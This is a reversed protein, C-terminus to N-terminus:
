FLLLIMALSRIESVGGYSCLNQNSGAASALRLRPSASSLLPHAMSPPPSRLPSGSRQRRQPQKTIRIRRAPPGRV